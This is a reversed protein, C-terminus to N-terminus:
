HTPSSEEAFRGPSKLEPDPETLEATLAGLVGFVSFAFLRWIVPIWFGGGELNWSGELVLASVAYLAAAGAGGGQCGGLALLIMPALWHAVRRLAFM